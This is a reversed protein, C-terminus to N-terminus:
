MVSKLWFDPSFVGSTNLVETTTLHNLYKLFRGVHEDITARQTNVSIQDKAQGWLRDMPNLEPSRKPLWLLKMGFDEALKQSGAATHGPNEDLLLAVHWSRYHHHILELYEQFAQQKHNKHVFFLRTGTRLNMLGYIVRRANWGSLMVQTPEGHKGWACRLPPFLLLDTEDEALLVNRGPLARIQRLIHRKKERDPDVTLVYRPRKWVYGLDELGRRITRGSLVQGSVRALHEQLLRVTWNVAFYGSDEPSTELLQEMHHLCQDSRRRPRGSRPQEHLIAPDPVRRYSEIWRHVSRRHVGVGEAIRM